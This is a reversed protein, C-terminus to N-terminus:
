KAEMLAAVFAQNSEPTAPFPAMGLCVSCTAEARSAVLVRGATAPAGCFARGGIGLHKPSAHAAQVLRIQAEHRAWERRAEVCMDCLDQGGIRAWGWAKAEFRADQATEAGAMYGLTSCADCRVTRGLKRPHAKLVSM